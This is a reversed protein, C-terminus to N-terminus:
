APHAAEDPCDRSAWRWYTSGPRACDRAVPESLKWPRPLAYKRAIKVMRQFAADPGDMREDTTTWRRVFEARAALEERLQGLYSFAREGPAALQGTAVSHADDVLEDLCGDSLRITVRHENLQAKLWRKGVGSGPVFSRITSSILRMVGEGPLKGLETAHM